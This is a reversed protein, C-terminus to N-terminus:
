RGMRIHICRSFGAEGPGEAPELLQVPEDPPSEVSSKPRAKKPRTVREMIRGSCGALFAAFPENFSNIDNQANVIIAHIKDFSVPFKARLAKDETEMM